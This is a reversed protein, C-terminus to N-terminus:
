ISIIMYRVVIGLVLVDNDLLVVWDCDDMRHNHITYLTAEVLAILLVIIVIWKM